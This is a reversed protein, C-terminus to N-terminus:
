LDAYAREDVESAWETFAAFPDEADSVAAREIIIGNPSDVFRVTDGTKLSLKERVSKPLVLQSKSSLKAKAAKV